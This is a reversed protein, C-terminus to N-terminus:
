SILELLPVQGKVGWGFPCTGLSTNDVAIDSSLQQYTEKSGTRHCLLSLKVHLSQEADNEVFYSM